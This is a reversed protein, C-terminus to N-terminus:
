LMEPKKIPYFSSNPFTVPADSLARQTRDQKTTPRTQGEEEKAFGNLNLFYKFGPKPYEVYNSNSILIFIFFVIKRDIKQQNKFKMSVANM